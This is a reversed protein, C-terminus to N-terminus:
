KSKEKLSKIPTVYEKGLKLLEGRTARMPPNIAISSPENLRKKEDEDQINVVRPKKSKSKEAAEIFLAFSQRMIAEKIGLRTRITRYMAEATPTNRIKPALGAMFEQKRGRVAAARVVSASIAGPLRPVAALQFVVKGAYTKKYYALLGGFGTATARDAGAFLTIDTYGAEILSDLALTIQQVKKGIKIDPFAQKMASSKEEWSLPNKKTDQTPSIFMVTDAGTKAAARRVYDVVKAHGFTPPNFRGYATVASKM